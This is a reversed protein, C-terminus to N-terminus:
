KCQINSWIERWIGKTKIWSPREAHSRVDDPVLVIFIITSGVNKSNWIWQFCLVYTFCIRLVICPHLVVSCTLVWSGLYIQKLRETDYFIRITDKCGMVFVFSLVLICYSYAASDGTLKSIREEIKPNKSASGSLFVIDIQAPTKISVQSFLLVFWIGCSVLFSMLGLDICVHILLAFLLIKRPAFDM